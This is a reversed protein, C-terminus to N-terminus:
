PSDGGLMDLSLGITLIRPDAIEPAAFPNPLWQVRTRSHHTVLVGSLDRTWAEEFYAGFSTLLAPADPGYGWAELLSGRPGQLASLVAPPYKARGERLWADRVAPSGSYHCRSGTLTSLVTTPSLEFEDSQVAVVFPTSRHVAPLKRRREAKDKLDRAFRERQKDDDFTHVSTVGGSAYGYGFSSPEFVFSALWEGAHRPVDDARPLHERRGPELVSPLTEGDRFVHVTGFAHAHSAEAVSHVGREAVSKALSESQARTKGDVSPISLREGVVCTVRSSVTSSEIQKQIQWTVDPDGSSLRTVDTFMEFGGEFVIHLDPTYVDSGFERDRLLSVRAGLKSFLIAIRLEALLNGLKIAGSGDEALKALGAIARGEADALLQEAQGRVFGNSDEGAIRGLIAWRDGFLTRLRPYSDM